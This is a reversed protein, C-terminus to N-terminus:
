LTNKRDNIYKEVKTFAALATPDDNRIRELQSIAFVAYNNADKVPQKKTKIKDEAEKKKNPPRVLEIASSVTFEKGKEDVTGIKEFVDPANEKVYEADRVTRGSIGVAAGAQDSSKGKSAQPLIEVPSHQNVGQTMRERAQKELLPKLSLSVKARQSVTLQRRHLNWSLVDGLPDTGDYYEFRPKTNAIECAKLRNRGDLVKGDLLIIANLLGRLKIDNAMESLESDTAMPFLDAYEHSEIM